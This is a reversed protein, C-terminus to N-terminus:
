EKRRDVDTSRIEWFRVRENPESSGHNVRCQGAHELQGTRQM